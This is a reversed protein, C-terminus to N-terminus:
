NPAPYVDIIDTKDKVLPKQAEALPGLVVAANLDIEQEIEFSMEHAHDRGVEEDLWTVANDEGLEEIGEDDEVGLCSGWSQHSITPTSSHNSTPMLMSELDYFSLTPHECMSQQAPDYMHWQRIQTMDDLARVQQQNCSASNMKTFVSMTHEEPM